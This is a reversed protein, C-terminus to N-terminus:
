RHIQSLLYERNNKSPDDLVMSLLRNLEEGIKPGAPFGEKILDSGTVALTKLSVCDGNKIMTDYAAALSDLHKLKEERHFDSQALFDAKNIEFMLPFCDEGIRNVWRRIDSVEAHIEWDHYEVLRSVLKETDRDYRLRRLIEAATKAGKAPHGYFHDIGKEDTTRTGPKEIDHLLATLRLIKTNGIGEMVRITHEGVTYAHHPNNQPTEMMRDFEPLVVGTIGLEYAKRIYGPNDSTILKELETRIREASINKLNKALDRIAKETELDISYGLQAAFRVARLIRLADEGFREEPNGVARVIKCRLDDMGGFNDVIGTRPNYAMANITFDRRRLDESLSKTFSVEKPHRSDEYKGDIRYTTVEYIEKGLLVSVTGHQIGTDFTRKFLKKVELPEASTTIDWDNPTRGLLSDRVCGGVAYAEHGAEELISIIKEVNSPLSINM